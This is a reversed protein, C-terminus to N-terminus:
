AADDGGKLSQLEVYIAHLESVLELAREPDGPLGETNIKKAIQNLNNGIRGLEGILRRRHAKESKTKANKGILVTRAWDSFELGDPINDIIEDRECPTARFKLTETRKEKRPMSRRPKKEQPKSEVGDDPGTEPTSEKEDPTPTTKAEVEDVEGSSSKQPKGQSEHGEGKVEQQVETKSAASVKTHEFPDRSQVRPSTEPKSKEGGSVESKEKAGPGGPSGSIPGGQSPGDKPEEGGAQLIAASQPKVPSETRPGHQESKTEETKPTDM